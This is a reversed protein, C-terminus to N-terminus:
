LMHSSNALGQTRNGAPSCQTKQRIRSDTRRDTDSSFSFLIQDTVHKNINGSIRYGTSAYERKMITIRSKREGVSFLPRWQSATTQCLNGVHVCSLCNRQQWNFLKKEDSEKLFNRKASLRSGPQNAKCECNEKQRKLNWNRKWLRLKEEKTKTWKKSQSTEAM